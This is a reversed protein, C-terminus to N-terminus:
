VKKWNTVVSYTGDILEKVEYDAFLNPAVLRLCLYIRFLLERIETDAHVDTRVEIVHRWSRVNGTVVIPAETENPLISRATQNIKKRLDVKSQAQFITSSQKNKLLEVLRKYELFIRDIRDEFERHLEDDQQYEPREVFRLIDSSVYRQSVQSYAFGVRHRVLEHTLSRSVGYILFSFNAHELVSGHGSQIINYFYRGADVNKTRKEGFSMYCLQGAFKCLAEADALKVPDDLYSSFSLGSKDFALLFEKLGNVMIQPKAIMVVGPAKLYPTGNQTYFVHSDVVPFGDIVKGGLLEFLDQLGVNKDM